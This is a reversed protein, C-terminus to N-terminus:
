YYPSKLLTKKMKSSPVIYIDDEESQISNYNTLSEVRSIYKVQWLDNTIDQIVEITKKNFIGSKDYLIIDMTDSGGFFNEHKKLEHIRSDTKKLWARVSFDSEISFIGYSVLLSFFLSISVCRKPNEVIFNALKEAIDNIKM